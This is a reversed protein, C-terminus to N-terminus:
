EEQEEKSEPEKREEDTVDRTHARAAQEKAEEEEKTEADIRIEIANEAATPDFMRHRHYADEGTTVDITLFALPTCRLALDECRNRAYEVRERLEKEIAQKVNLRLKARNRLISEADRTNRTIAVRFCRLWLALPTKIARVRSLAHTTFKLNKLMWTNIDGDPKAKLATEDWYTVFEETEMERDENEAITNIIDQAHRMERENARNWEDQYERLEVENKVLRARLKGRRAPLSDYMKLVKNRQSSRLVAIQTTIHERLIDSVREVQVQKQKAAVSSRLPAILIADAAFTEMNILEDVMEYSENEMLDKTANKRGMLRPTHLISHLWPTMMTTEELWQVRAIPALISQVLEIEKTVIRGREFEGAMLEPERSAPNTGLRSYTPIYDYPLTTGYWNHRVLLNSRGMPMFAPSLLMRLLTEIRGYFPHALRDADGRPVFHLSPAWEQFRPVNMPSPVPEFTWNRPRPGRTNLMPPKCAFGSVFFLQEGGRFPAAVYIILDLLEASFTNFSTPLHDQVERSQLLRMANMSAPTSDRANASRDEEDFVEGLFCGIAMQITYSLLSELSLETVRRGYLTSDHSTRYNQKNRGEAYLLHPLIHEHANIHANEVLFAVVDFHLGSADRNVIIPTDDETGAERLERLLASGRLHLDTSNASNQLSEHPHFELTFDDYRRKVVLSLAALVCQVRSRDNIRFHNPTTRRVHHFLALADGPDLETPFDPKAVGIMHMKTHAINAAARPPFSVAVLMTRTLDLETELVRSLQANWARGARTSADPFEGLLAFMLQDTTHGHLSLLTAIYLLEGVECLRQKRTVNKNSVVYARISAALQKEHNDNWGDPSRVPEDATFPRRSVIYNINVGYMMDRVKIYEISKFYSSM